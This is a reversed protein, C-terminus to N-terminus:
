TRQEHVSQANQGHIPTYCTRDSGSQGGTMLIMGCYLNGTLFLNYMIEFQTHCVACFRVIGGEGTEGLRNKQVWDTHVTVKPNSRISRFWRSHQLGLRRFRIIGDQIGKCRKADKCTVLGFMCFFMCLRFHGLISVKKIIIIIIQM